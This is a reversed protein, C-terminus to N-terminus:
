FEFISWLEGLHNEIPTGSMALRHRARLLRSAKAVQSSANKIAQAEDLIVTDFETKGLEVIDTRLTGYTTVILDNQAFTARLASRRPGTYDLVRLGPTFREAEQVWNFVLSRPVVILCPGEAQRLDHRRQLLALVQVTKGLGMDDALIGGFGFRRLYDLWGLGERQYPRLTGRFGEPADLAEVGQFGGLQRRVQDFSADVRVEPQAALLADLLSAQARHFRLGGDATTGLAALAGYKKLWDEPLMGMSGDSLTIMEQGKEAAALLEPLPVSQGGFDVQGGLELWDIGSTVSLKFESAPRILQGEAEVRWGAQVLDRVAQDMKKPPLELTGPEVRLDKSERFGLEFLKVRAEGEIAEDRYIARRLESRVAVRGTQAAPIRTDDYDFEVEALLHGSGWNQRPTRLTMCPQPRRNVEVLRPYELL